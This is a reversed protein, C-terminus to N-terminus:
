ETKLGEGVLRLDLGNILKARLQEAAHMAATMQRLTSVNSGLLVIGGAGHERTQLQGAKQM